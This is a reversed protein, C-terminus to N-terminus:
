VFHGPKTYGHPRAGLCKRSKRSKSVEYQRTGPVERAIPLESQREASARRKGFQQLAARRHLFPDVGRLTSDLKGM